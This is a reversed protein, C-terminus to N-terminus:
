SAGADDRPSHAEGLKYTAIKGSFLTIGRLTKDGMYLRTM